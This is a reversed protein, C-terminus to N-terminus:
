RAVAECAIEILMEPHAHATVVVMISALYPPCYLGARLQRFTDLDKERRLYVQQQAIRDFSSGAADLLATLNAVVQRCQMTFDNPGVLAGTDDFPAVGCTLVLGGVRVAQAYHAGTAWSWAEPTIVDFGSENM